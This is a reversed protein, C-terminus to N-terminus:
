NQTGSITVADFKESGLYPDHLRVSRRGNEQPPGPIPRTIKEKRHTIKEPIPYTEEFFEGPRNNDLTVTALRQGDVIVDFERGGSDSLV